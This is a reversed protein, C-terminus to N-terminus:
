VGSLDMEAKLARPSRKEERLRWDDGSSSQGSVVDITEKADVKVGESHGHGDCWVAKMLEEETKGKTSERKWMERWMGCSLIM